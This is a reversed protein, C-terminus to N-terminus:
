DVPYGAHAIAVKIAAESQQTEVEVRKTAPDAIVKAVPDVANVAKTIIEVCASCAMSPVKLYLTM